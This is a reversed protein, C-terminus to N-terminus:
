KVSQRLRALHLALRAPDVRDAVALAELILGGYAGTLQDRRARNTPRNLGDAHSRMPELCSGSRSPEEFMGAVAADQAVDARM